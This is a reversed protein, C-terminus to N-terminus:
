PTNTAARPVDGSAAPAPLADGAPPATLQSDGGSPVASPSPGPRDGSVGASSSLGAAAHDHPAAPASPQGAIGHAAAVQGSNTRRKSTGTWRFITRGKNQLLQQPDILPRPSGPGFLRRPPPPVIDSPRWRRHTVVTPPPASVRSATPEPAIAPWPSSPSPAASLSRAAIVPTDLGLSIFNSDDVYGVDAWEFSTDSGEREKITMGFSAAEERRGSTEQQVKTAARSSSTPGMGHSNTAAEMGKQPRHHQETAVGPQGQGDGAPSPEDGDQQRQQDTTENDAAHEEATPPTPEDGQQRPQGGGGALQNGQQQQMRGAAVSDVAHNLAISIRRLSPSAIPLQIHRPPQEILMPGLTPASQAHLSLIPHTKSARHMAVVSRLAARAAGEVRDFVETLYHEYAADFRESMRVRLDAQRYNDITRKMAAAIVGLHFAESAAAPLHPCEKRSGMVALLADTSMGVRNFILERTTHVEGARLAARLYAHCSSFSALSLSRLMEIVDGEDEYNAWLDLWCPGQGGRILAAMVRLGEQRGGRWENLYFFVHNVATRTQRHWPLNPDAGDDILQTVEAATLRKALLGRRLAETHTLACPFAALGLGKLIRLASRLPKPQEYLDQEYVAVYQRNLRRM